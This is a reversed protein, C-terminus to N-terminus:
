RRLAELRRQALAYSSLAAGDTRPKVSRYLERAVDQLGYAEALGAQVYRTSDLLQPTGDLDVLQQFAAQAASVDGLDLLVSALTHVSTYSKRESLEAALQALERMDSPRPEVFLAAWAAENYAAALEGAESSDIARRYIRQAEAVKGTQALARALWNGFVLRPRRAEVESASRRAEREVEGFRGLSWLAELRLQKARSSTPHLVLLREASALQQEHAGAARAALAVAHEWASPEVKAAGDKELRQRAREAAASTACLAAAALEVDGKGEAWLRVFPARRLPDDGAESQSAEAAWALWQEAGRADGRSLRQLAECGLEAPDGARLRYSSGQKVVYRDFATASGSLESVQVHVRFGVADSGTVHTRLTAARVDALAAPPPRTGTAPDFVSPRSLLELIEAKRVAADPSAASLQAPEVRKTAQLIRAVPAFKGGDRGARSAEEYLASAEPYRRATYFAGAATALAQARQAGRLGKRNAYAVGAAVGRRHTEGAIAYAPPLQEGRDSLEEFRHAGLLADAEKNAFFGERYSTVTEFPVEDYLSLAEDLGAQSSDAALLSALWLKSHQSSADLQLARRFAAQAGRSDAGPAQLRGQEDCQLVMGLTQQALADKPALASALRAKERAQRGFGLESLKTALRLLPRAQSPEARALEQLLRMGERPRGESFAFESEHALEIEDKEESDLSAIGEKLRSLESPTLRERDLELEFTASASGDANTVYSRTMRAPGLDLAPLQPVRRVRFHPPPVVRYRVQARYRVPVRLDGRRPTDNWVPAPLWSTLLGYELPVVARFLEITAVQSGEADLTLRLPQRVDDLGDLRAALLKDASYQKKVYETLSSQREAESGAFSDRLRQEIVGTGSSAESVRTLGQEQLRIERVELYRNEKASLSPTLTLARSGSDVILALRGQDGEPLEGARAHDSTPDIWFPEPTQVVVIAHNFVDLAPLRPRVDEGPGARLLALTAPLGVARLMAVLVLAQDKCDGYTRRLVEAPSAPVIASQGFEVAVYRVRQHLAHLLQNAKGRESAGATVSRRALEAVGDAGRLKENMVREYETAIRQWSEGTSFAVAPWQPVTSLSLPEASEVADLNKARFVVHRRGGALTEEKKVRADLLEYNFPLSSPLDVVLEVSDRPIANQIVVHFASGGPFFPQTTWRRTAETVVSGVHVGPLPARLIRRDGYIDPLEPYAPAEAVASPDLKRLAGGPDAVQAELEPRAMYWPSWGTATGGWGEVGQKNLIRYSQRFQERWNGKEDFVYDFRVDLLRVPAEETSASREVRAIPPYEPVASRVCGVALGLGGLV